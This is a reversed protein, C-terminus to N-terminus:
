PFRADSVAALACLGGLLLLTAVIARDGNAFALLLGGGVLLVALRIYVM